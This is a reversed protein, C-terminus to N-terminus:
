PTYWIPSTYAREQIVAPVHEPLEQQFRVADYTSWRPTPIEIVRAYYFARQSADFDPDVWFSGLSTSGSSNSYSATEINVTSELAVAKGSGTDIKRGDSLAVDYVKENLSGDTGLWGKVIQIRDLNAGDPDKLAGVLFEPAKGAGINELDGGMPVGNKPPTGSFGQRDIGRSDPDQGDLDWGGFFWVVIRPGTTAYVERRKLADFLAERTNEPAWVAAYGSATLRWNEWLTGAMKNTLREPGPESDPFKGFLNGSDATALSTHSDTSGIMGFKFPNTGLAQEFRLGLKLVPRAYEHQYMDALGSQDKPTMAINTEDWNEFDAFEDGPSLLPHAEADGKVQTVEYVPEWRSRRQAYDQDIPQGGLTTESFMLGDSLNGNHPIAMASGGTKNEYNELSQWLAEPDYSDLASFPRIQMTKDAGDRFIVNRHLNRGDIMSTWEYGIFTTFTGPDYYQEALTGLTQWTDQIFADPMYEAPPESDEIAAIYEEVISTFDEAEMYEGWRRGLTSDALSPHGEVLGYLMGLYEAHDSVLLFDLPRGLRAEEGNHAKVTEGRAFRFADAPTLNTNGLSYADFSYNSHVHLDGWFVKKEVEATPKDVKETLVDDQDPLGASVATDPAENSCAALLIAMIAMFSQGRSIRGQLGPKQSDTM